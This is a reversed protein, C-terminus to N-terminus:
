VVKMGIPEAEKYTEFVQYPAMYFIYGGLTRMPVGLFTGRFNPSGGCIVEFGPSAQPNSRSITYPINQSVEM